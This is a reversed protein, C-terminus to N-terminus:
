EFLEPPRKGRRYRTKLRGYPIGLEIAWDALIMRKGNWEFWLNARKNRNQEAFTAWRVNGPEYNGDNDPYRDLSHKPSPPEGIAAAFVSFDAAWEPHISIGRGAYNPAHTCRYKINRWLDYLKAMAPTADEGAAKHLSRAKNAAARGSEPM